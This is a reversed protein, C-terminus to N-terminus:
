DEKTEKKPEDVRTLKFDEFGKQAQINKEVEEARKITMDFEEGKPFEQKEAKGKFTYNAVFKAM